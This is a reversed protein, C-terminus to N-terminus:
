KRREILANRHTKKIYKKLKEMVSKETLGFCLYVVKHRCILMEKVEPDSYYSVDETIKKMIWGIYFCKFPYFYAFYTTKVNM